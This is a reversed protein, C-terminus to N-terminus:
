LADRETLDAQNRAEPVGTKVLQLHSIDMVPGTYDCAVCDPDVGNLWHQISLFRAGRPGVVAGHIDDPKVRLMRWYYSTNKGSAVTEAANFVFRGRHSFKIQGEIYVEFSDVNPHTHAPIVYNAPVSFLQVQFAGERLLRSADVAGIKSIPADFHM